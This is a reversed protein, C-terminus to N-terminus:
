SPDAPTAASDPVAAKPGRSQTLNHRQKKEETRGGAKPMELPAACDGMPWANASPNDYTSAAVAPSASRPRPSLSVRGRHRRCTAEAASGLWLPSAMDPFGGADMPGSRRRGDEGDRLVGLCRYTKILTQSFLRRAQFPHSSACWSPRIHGFHAHRPPPVYSAEAAQVAQRRGSPFLAPGSSVGPMASLARVRSGRVQYIALAQDQHHPHYQTM